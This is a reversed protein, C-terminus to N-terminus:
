LDKVLGIRDHGSRYFEPQIAFVAYGQRQYFGDAEFEATWTWIHQIGIERLRGELL